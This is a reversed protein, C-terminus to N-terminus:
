QAFYIWFIMSVLGFLIYYDILIYTWFLLAKCQNENYEKYIAYYFFAFGM